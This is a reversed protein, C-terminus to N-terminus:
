WEMHVRATAKVGSAVVDGRLSLRLALRSTPTASANGGGQRSFTSVMGAGGANGQGDVLLVDELGGVVCATLTGAGRVLFSGPACSSSTAGWSLSAVALDYSVTISSATAAEAPLSIPWVLEGAVPKGATFDFAAAAKYADAGAAMVSGSLTPPGVLPIVLDVPAPCGARSTSPTSGAALTPCKDLADPIGDGDRDPLPCGRRAAVPDPFKGAATTPCVDLGDVVGDGDSDGDPCGKRTPSPTAGQPTDVCLDVDDPVGDGDTDQPPQPTIDVVTQAPPTPPTPAVRGCDAVPRLTLEWGQTTASAILCGDARRAEAALLPIATVRTASPPLDEVALRGDLTSYIHEPPVEHGGALNYYLWLSAADDPVARVVVPRSSCATLSLTLFAVLAALHRSM